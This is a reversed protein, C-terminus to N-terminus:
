SPRTKYLKGDAGISVFDGPKLDEGFLPRHDTLFPAVEGRVSAGRPLPTSHVAMRRQARLEGHNQDLLQNVFAQNVFGLQIDGEIKTPEFMRSDIMGFPTEGMYHPVSHSAPMESHWLVRQYDVVIGVVDGSMDWSVSKVGLLEIAQPPSAIMTRDLQWYKRTAEEGRVIGGPVLLGLASVGVAKLLQRRTLIFEGMGM